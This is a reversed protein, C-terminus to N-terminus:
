ISCYLIHKGISFVAMFYLHQYSLIYYRLLYLAFHSKKLIGNQTTCKMDHSLVRANIKREM